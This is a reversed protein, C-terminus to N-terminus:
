MSSLAQVATEVEDKAEDLTAPGLRPQIGRMLLVEKMRDFSVGALDAAKALSIEDTQYQHIAWDLRIQPREQWLVRMAETIATQENPYLGAKVLKEPTIMPQEMCAIFKTRPLVCEDTHGGTKLM